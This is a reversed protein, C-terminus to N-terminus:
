WEGAPVRSPGTPCWPIRGRRTRGIVDADHNQEQELHDEHVGRQGDHGAGRGFAPLIDGEADRGNEQARDSIGHEGVPRPAASPEGLQAGIVSQAGAIGVKGSGAHHVRHTADGRQSQSEDHTRADALVVAVTRRVGHRSVVHDNHQGAAEDQGEAPESEVRAAREARGPANRMLVM